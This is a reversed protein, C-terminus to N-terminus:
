CVHLMDVCYRKSVQQDRFVQCISAVGERYRDCRSLYVIYQCSAKKISIAGQCVRSMNVCYKKISIASQFV